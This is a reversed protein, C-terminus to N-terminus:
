EEMSGRDVAPYLLDCDGIEQVLRANSNLVASARWRSYNWSRLDSEGLKECYRRSVRTIATIQDSENISDFSGLLVPLADDSLSSNYAADFERGQQMLALNTRVIFADPNLVHTAGLVLFASWLAAWAFHQRAGRLVTFAFLVFVIALWIMFIMPYLRVTTLGYGLNGTLLILRQAASAMIVFLLAIQVGALVRFLREAARSEKRILWHSALLMPLVLASVAVLEGFGRRAYDALKFDPTNQVLDMGGFLYPVQFIVFSLFLLNVLGLTVGVEVSGLTFGPVISNDLNAWTWATKKEGSTDSTAGASPAEFRVSGVPRTEAEDNPEDEINIHEVVTKNEPLVVPHEGSEAQMRAVPSGESREAADVLISLSPVAAAAAGAFIIGRLYGASLWAFLAFLAGHSFITAFDVNLIRRVWGDYVADAAMFLAGFILLLPAAILLSRFVAFVHKRWGTMPLDNWGIDSALLAFPALLSNLAAWFVAIAYHFVGAIKAPVRLTPLFLVGLIVIIAFTDAIRLEISDRWVFMSAFFLLSGLLAYSQTTLREPVHRWLLMLMGGAFALNFLLVNLGWPTQRLLLDGLVGLAIAVQLVELGIKTSKKM